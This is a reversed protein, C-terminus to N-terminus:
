RVEESKTFTESTMDFYRSFALQAIYYPGLEKSADVNIYKDYFDTVDEPKVPTNCFKEVQVENGVFLFAIYDRKEQTDAIIECKTIAGTTKLDVYLQM